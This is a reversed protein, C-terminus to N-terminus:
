SAFPLQHLVAENSGDENHNMDGQNSHIETHTKSAKRKRRTAYFEWHKKFHEACLYISYLGFINRVLVESTAATNCITEAAEDVVLSCRGVLVPETINSM